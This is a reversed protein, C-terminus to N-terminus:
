LVRDDDGDRVISPDPHDGALVPNLFTGNGLDAKRQGEFGRSWSPAAARAPATTAALAPAAALGTLAGRRSVPGM